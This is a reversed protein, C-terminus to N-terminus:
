RTSIPFDLVGAEYRKRSETPGIITGETNRARKRGKNTMHRVCFCRRKGEYTKVGHFRMCFPASPVRCGRSVYTMHGIPGPRNQHFRPELGAWVSRDPRDIAQKWGYGTSGRAGGPLRGNDPTAQSYWLQWQYSQGSNRQWSDSAMQLGNMGCVFWLKERSCLWIILMKGGLCVVEKKGFVFPLWHM